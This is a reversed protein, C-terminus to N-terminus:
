TTVRKIVYLIFLIFSINAWFAIGILAVYFTVIYKDGNDEYVIDSLEAGVDEDRILGGAKYKGATFIPIIIRGTQYCLGYFLCEVFAWVAVEALIQIM